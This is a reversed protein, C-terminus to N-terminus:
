QSNKSLRCIIPYSASLLCLKNVLHKKNSFPSKIVGRWWKGLFKYILNLFVDPNWTKQHCCYKKGTQPSVRFHCFINLVRFCTIVFARALEIVAEFAM